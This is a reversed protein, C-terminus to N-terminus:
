LLGRRYHRRALSALALPINMPGASCQLYRAPTNRQGGITPSLFCPPALHALKWDKNRELLWGTVRGVGVGVAIAM